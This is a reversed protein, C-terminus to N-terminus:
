ARRDTGRLSRTRAASCSPTFPGHRVIGVATKGHIGLEEQLADRLEGALRLFQLLLIGGQVLGDAEQLLGVLHVEQGVSLDHIIQDGLDLPDGVNDLFEGAPLVGLLDPVELLPDAGQLGVDRWGHPGGAEDALEELLGAPHEPGHNDTCDAVDEVDDGYRHKPIPLPFACSQM